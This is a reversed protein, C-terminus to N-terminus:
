EADKDRIDNVKAGAEIEALRIEHANQKDIIEGILGIARTYEDSYLNNKARQKTLNDIVGDLNHFIDAGGRPIRAAKCFTDKDAEIGAITRCYDLFGRRAADADKTKFLNIM